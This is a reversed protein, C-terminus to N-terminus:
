DIDNGPILVDDLYCTEEENLVLGEDTTSSVYRLENHSDSDQSSSDDIVDDTLYGEMIEFQGTITVLGSNINEENVPKSGWIGRSAVLNDSTGSDCSSGSTSTLEPISSDCELHVREGRDISEDMMEDNSKDNRFNLGSFNSSIGHTSSSNDSDSTTYIGINNLDLCTSSLNLSERLKKREDDSEIDESAHRKRGRVRKKDKLKSWVSRLTNFGGIRDYSSLSWELSRSGVAVSRRTIEQNIDETLEFPNHFQRSPDALGIICSDLSPDTSNGWLLQSNNSSNSDEDLLKLIFEETGSSMSDFGVENSQYVTNNEPESSSPSLGFTAVEELKKRLMDRKAKRVYM